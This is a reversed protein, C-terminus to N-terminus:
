GGALTQPTTVLLAKDPWVTGHFRVGRLETNWLVGTYSAEGSWYFNYLGVPILAHLRSAHSRPLAKTDERGYGSLPGRRRLDDKFREDANHRTLGMHIYIQVTSTKLGAERICVDLVSIIHDGLIPEAVLTSIDIRRPPRPLQDRHILEPSTQRPRVVDSVPRCLM